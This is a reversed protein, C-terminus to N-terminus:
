SECISAMARFAHVTARRHYGVRYLAYLMTNNSMHGERSPSRFLLPSNESDPLARLERLVAVAQPALPVIHERKMKTREAPIRWLPENGDLNEFESWQAARLETTRAFTLVMLRLALRTRAEGDYVALSELFKPVEDLSMAKHGSPRGPSKLAGRLDVSPDDKARGTAIAYRFVQGCTQRLRLATEIAGRREARRLADLLDLANIDAIPRSGIQSFIDADLRALLLGCYRQSLRNRQNAIWERAVAEFTNKGALKALRKTRKKAASPDAGQALLLRAQERHTRASSLTVVPYVGFALTRRKGAFRYDMRWYRAGDPTVLLYMGGGDSLKYATAKPKANRIRTDTLTM